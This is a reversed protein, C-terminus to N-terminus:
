SHLLYGLHLNEMTTARDKDMSEGTSFKCIFIHISISLSCLTIVTDAMARQKYLLGLSTFNTRPAEGM